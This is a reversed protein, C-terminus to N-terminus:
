IKKLIIKENQREIMQRFFDKLMDYDKTAFIAKSIDEIVNINIISEECVINMTYSVEKNETVIRISKPISEVAYGYPLELSITYIYRHPYGFYIPMQREEQVFPNNSDTFFLLPNLFIKGGIADYSNNWTFNFNELVPKALDETKNEIKYGKIEIKNLDNELEELYVDESKNANIERFNFASYDTRKVSIMGEIKGLDPKITAKVNYDDKSIIEPILEIEESLGDDKILRGRWNLLDLPLVNPTTFQNTADLLIKQGEIEASAIVYNFVTRNPFVPVGNEITSVLVPSTKIGAAKLMSILIINIEAVNGTRALYAKEVGKDVYYGKEKNWNMKNKVFKFIVNLREKPMSINQLLVKLDESFYDQLKLEGGFDKDKYITKAVGEWTEAYDVVPMDPFRQSELEILIAGKYNNINDVFKEKKVAPVNKARYLKNIQKYGLAYSKDSDIAKVDTEIEVYGRLLSNYIFFEPIETKYEFFNVPIDYQFDFDPLRTLNESELVYKFEIISGVKVNPLTIIAQNWFKNIKNKFTGENNLKTKVIIGDELNYTVASSFRVIDDNLNDYGVYYPVKQNAWSLGGTKYIKIRFEYVNNATFGTRNSYTFFTKGRKFLIAAVASTDIPHKKEELQSVSVKGLDSNQAYTNLFSIVFLFVVILKIKM